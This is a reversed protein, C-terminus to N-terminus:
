HAKRPIEEERTEARPDEGIAFKLYWIAKQLDQTPTKTSSKLDARWLYKFANLKCYIGVEYEGFAEVMADICEVGGQTYHYPKYVEDNM